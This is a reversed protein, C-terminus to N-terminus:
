KRIKTMLRLNSLYHHPDVHPNNNLYALHKDIFPIIHNAYSKTNAIYGAETKFSNDLMMLRLEHEVEAGEETDVLYNKRRADSM